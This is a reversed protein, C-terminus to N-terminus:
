LKHEWRALHYFFHNNYSWFFSFFYRLVGMCVVNITTCFVIKFAAQKVVVSHNLKYITKLITEISYTYTRTHTHTYSLKSITICRLSNFKQLKDDTVRFMCIVKFIHVFCCCFVNACFLIRQVLPTDIYTIQFPYCFWILLLSLLACVCVCVCFYLSFCFCVFLTLIWLFVFLRLRSFFRSLHFYVAHM